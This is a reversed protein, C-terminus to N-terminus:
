DDRRNRHEIERTKSDFIAYDGYYFSGISVIYRNGKLLNIKNDLTRGMQNNFGNLIITSASHDHGRFLIDYKQKEMKDFNIKINEISNMRQWLGDLIEDESSNKLIIGGHCYAIKGGDEIKQELTLGANFSKGKIANEIFKKESPNKDWQRAYNLYSGEMTKGDIRIEYIYHLDHNGVIFNKILETQMTERLIEPTDYDGLFVVKEVGRNEMDKVLRSPNKGHMDSVLLIKM